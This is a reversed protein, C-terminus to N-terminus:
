RELLESLLQVALSGASRYSPVLRPVGLRDDGARVTKGAVTFGLSYGARRAATRVRADNGGHPYAILELPEDTIAELDERGDQLALALANDDLVTLLEHRRTHFGLRMGARRLLLVDASRLGADAPPPGPDLRDVLAEREEYTLTKLADADARSSPAGRAIARQMREWWFEHPRDLSAGCLFFTATLGARELLPLAREVHSRLDDDFTIAVPFRGGRRRLAIAELMGAADVVRFWRALHRLQREVVEVGHSPSIERAPDGSAEEIGHYVLVVGVRRRSLRLLCVALGGIPTGLLRVLWSRAATV